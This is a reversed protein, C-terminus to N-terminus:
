GHSASYTSAKQRAETLQYGNDLDANFKPWLRAATQHVRCKSCTVRHKSHYFQDSGDRFQIMSWQEADQHFVQHWATRPQRTQLLKRIFHLFSASQRAPVPYTSNQETM